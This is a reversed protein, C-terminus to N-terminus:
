ARTEGKEEPFRIEFTTGKGNRFQLEGSLQSTLMRVLKMGLSKGKEPDFDAPLGVGTDSVHLVYLADSRGFTIKIEGRMNAPFAYKLSNAALENIILGCPVAIDIPLSVQDVDINIKVAEPRIRYSRSVHAVLKELYEGFNIRSLDKSQYLTEHILAMSKVRNQSDQFVSLSHKDTITKSQLSLLSTIVQMNNKVRHHIEKLLVEKEQLSATIQELAQKRETVDDAVGAVRYVEGSQNVIPFARDRVWRIEGDPRVIRYELDYQGGAQVAARAEILRERDDEHVTDLWPCSMESLSKSPRGWVEEYAPSVYLLKNDGPETIWFVERISEAIQRFREESRRLAKEAQKRATIDTAIGLVQNASGDQSVIPRKLTQLWRVQGGADTMVEEPIFKETLTTLVELDDNRFAVVQEQNLNFDADTKGLLNEASTHYADAIARNVLTFRGDRDKAFVFNPNLDIVQRLFSRQEALETEALKREAVERELERNAAVLQVTRSAVHSELGQNLSEIEATREAIGWMEGVSHRIAILLFTDEFIVWGAHELWRWNSATLVGYVSQPWFVGRLLHDAAVIVTAPVLVRWDRYFSLFALSGFVHFHTEIRGGTLHILLAGMLMQGVAVAYRTIVHGPRTVALLIPLSSIAGGLFIAAWVHPHTESAAGTWTKPSVWLAAAIGALYQLAMLAAFMKDTRRYVLGRHKDFIETVREATKEQTNPNTSIEMLRVEVIPSQESSHVVLSRQKVPLRRAPICYPCSLAEVQTTERIAALLPLEAASCFVDMRAMCWQKALHEPALPKRKPGMMM